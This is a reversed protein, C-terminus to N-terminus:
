WASSGGTRSDKRARLVKVTRRRHCNACRIECKNIEALIRKWSLGQYAMTSVDGLKNGKVHDFELVTSDREGCDVCKLPQLVADIMSLNRDIVHRQSIRRKTRYEVLHARYHQKSIERQCPRCYACPRPTGVRRVPFESLLKALGCRPCRKKNM